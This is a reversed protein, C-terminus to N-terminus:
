TTYFINFSLSDNGSYVSIVDTNKLTIGGTFIFTDNADIPLDYYIYHSDSITAGLPRIAVRFTTSVIGTNCIVISSVVIDTTATFLDSLTTASPMLRANGLSM